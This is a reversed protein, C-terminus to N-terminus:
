VHSSPAIHAWIVGSPLPPPTHSCGAAAWNVALHATTTSTMTAPPSFSPLQLAFLMKTLRVDAYVATTPSQMITLKRQLPEQDAYVAGVLIVCRITVNRNCIKSVLVLPSSVLILCQGRHLRFRGMSSNPRRPRSSGRGCAYQRSQRLRACFILRAAICLSSLPFCCNRYKRRTPRTGSSKRSLVHCWM